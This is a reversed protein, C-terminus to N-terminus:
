RIVSTHESMLPKRRRRTGTCTCSSFHAVGENLLLKRRLRNALHVIVSETAERFTGSPSKPTNKNTTRHITDPTNPTRMSDLVSLNRQKQAGRLISISFYRHNGPGNYITWINPSRINSFFTLFVPELKEGYCKTQTIISPSYRREPLPYIVRFLASCPPVSGMCSDHRCKSSACHQAHFVTTETTPHVLSLTHLISNRTAKPAQLTTSVGSNLSPSQEARMCALPLKSRPSLIMPSAGDENEPLCNLGLYLLKPSPSSLLPLAM